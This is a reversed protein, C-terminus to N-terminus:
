LEYWNDDCIIQELMKRLEKFIQLEDSKFNPHKSAAFLIGNSVDKSYPCLSKIEESINDPLRSLHGESIYNLWCVDKIETESSWIYRNSSICDVPQSKILRVFEEKVVYSDPSDIHLCSFAYCSKFDIVTSEFFDILLSLNFSDIDNLPIYLALENFGDNKGCFRKDFTFLIESFRIHHIEQKKQLNIGRATSSTILKEITKLSNRNLTIKRQRGTQPFYTCLDFKSLGNFHPLNLAREIISLLLTKNDFIKTNNFFKVTLTRYVPSDYSEM